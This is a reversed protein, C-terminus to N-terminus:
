SFWNGWLHNAHETCGCTAAVSAALQGPDLQQGMFLGLGITSQIHPTLESTSAEDQIGFSGADVESLTLLRDAFHLENTISNKLVGLIDPPM